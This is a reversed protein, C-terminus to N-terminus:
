DVKGFMNLPWFRLVFKGEIKDLPICGFNRSDTSRVRNDGMLFVHGEPVVIDTFAGGMSPTELDKPLYPEDLLKSNLYVKGNEIKIHDGAIGVVRKVYSVKNIELLYYKFKDWNSFETDSYYIAVPNSLDINEKIILVSPGYFTVITGRELDENTTMCWRNILLRQGTNLTPFMSTQDVIRLTVIYYRILLAVGVALILCVFWELTKLIIRDLKTDTKEDVNVIYDAQNYKNKDEKLDM